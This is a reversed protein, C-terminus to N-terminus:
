ETDVEWPLPIDRCEALPPDVALVAQKDFPWFTRMGRERLLEDQLLLYVFIWVGSAVAYSPKAFNNQDLFCVPHTGTPGIVIRATMIYLNGCGDSALPFWGRQKWAPYEKLHWDLCVLEHKSFLSDLGSPKVNAGNCRRFWSKLENPLEIQHIEEFKALEEDPEGSVHLPRRDLTSVQHLLDMVKDEIM